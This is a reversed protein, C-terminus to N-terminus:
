ELSPGSWDLFSGFEEKFGKMVSHKMEDDSRISEWGQEIGKAETVRCAQTPLSRAM